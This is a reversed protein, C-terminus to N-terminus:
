SRASTAAAVSDPRGRVLRWLNTALLIAWIAVAVLLTVRLSQDLTAQLKLMKDSVAPGQVEVLPGARWLAAVLALGCLNCVVELAARVRVWDPRILGTLSSAVQVLAWALIPLHLTTWIPNTSLTLHAEDGVAVWPPPVLQTWWAIFLLTAALEFAAEFRRQLLGRGRRRPWGDWSGLGGLGVLRELNPLDAVKWDTSAGLKIWGREVAAAILTAAGILTLGANIFGSLFQGIVQTPDIHGAAVGLLIPIITVVAALLLLAKVAFEYFPYLEPGILARPTGFRGAVAIPHGFAKLLAEIEAPKLPRGLEAEKEEIQNLLIDRLEAIIDQRQDKPLLAAVAALYRDLLDM